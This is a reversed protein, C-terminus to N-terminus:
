LRKVGKIRGARATRARAARVKLGGLAGRQGGIRLGTGSSLWGSSIDATRAAPNPEALPATDARRALGRIGPVASPALRLDSM